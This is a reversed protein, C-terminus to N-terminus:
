QNFLPAPYTVRRHEVRAFETLAHPKPEAESLIHLVTHGRSILADSILRRHCQWWVAESCMIATPKAEAFTVLEDLAAEFAPTQMYAAYARFASNEWGAVSSGNINGLDADKNSRRGGLSEMWHYDINAAELARQRSERNFHPLRRSGPFRRVDVLQALGHVRLLELFAEASRNSHGITYM